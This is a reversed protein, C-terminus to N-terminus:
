RDFDGNWHRALARPLLWQGGSTLREADDVIRHSRWQTVLPDLVDRATREDGADILQTLRDVGADAGPGEGCLTTVVRLIQTSSVADGHGVEAFAATVDSLVGRDVDPPVPADRLVDLSSQLVDVLEAEFSRWQALLGEEARDLDVDVGELNARYEDIFAQVAREDDTDVGSALLASVMASVNADVPEFM